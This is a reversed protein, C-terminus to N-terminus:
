SQCDSRHCSGKRMDSKRMAAMFQETDTDDYDWFWSKAARQVGISARKKFAKPLIQWGSTGDGYHAYAITMNLSCLRAKNGRSHHLVVEDAFLQEDHMEYVIAMPRQHKGYEDWYNELWSENVAIVARKTTWCLLHMFYTWNIHEDRLTVLTPQGLIERNSASEELGMARAFADIANSAICLVNENTAQMLRVIENQINFM